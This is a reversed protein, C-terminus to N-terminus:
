YGRLIVAPGNTSRRSTYVKMSAKQVQRFSGNAVYKGEKKSPSENLGRRSSSHGGSRIMSNGEKQSPSEDLGSTSTPTAPRSCWKGEKESPSENLRRRHPSPLSSPQASKGGKKQPAKMSSAFPVPATQNCIDNGVKGYPGEDLSSCPFAGPQRRQSKGEEKTPVKMSAVM